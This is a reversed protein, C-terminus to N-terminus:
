RCGGPGCRSTGCSGGSCGGQFPTSYYSPGSFFTGRYAAVHRSTGCCGFAMVPAQWNPYKAAFAAPSYPREFSGDGYIEGTVVTPAPPEIVGTPPLDPKVAAVLPADVLECECDECKCPKCPCKPMPASENGSLDNCRLLKAKPPTPKAVSASIAAAPSYTFAMAALCLLSISALFTKM